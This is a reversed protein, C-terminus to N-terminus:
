QERSELQPHQNRERKNKGCLRCKKGGEKAVVGGGGGSREKIGKPDQPWLLTAAHRAARAAGGLTLLLLSAQAPFLPPGLNPGFALFQPLGAM